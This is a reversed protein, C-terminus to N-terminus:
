LLLTRKGGKELNAPKWLPRLNSLAWAAKFEPDDASSYTFSALPIIHDIHWENRNNWTMSKPFQRELHTV